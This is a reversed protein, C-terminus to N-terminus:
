REENMMRGAVKGWTGRGPWQAVLRSTVAAPLPERRGCNACAAQSGVARAIPFGCAPCGSSFSSPHIIFSSDPSTEKNMM